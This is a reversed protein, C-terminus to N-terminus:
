FGGGTNQGGDLNGVRTVELPSKEGVLRHQLWTALASLMLNIVIYLAAVVIMTPVRNDFQLYIQKMIRTLGPSTVAYGLATDKLVVVCQSILAPLMIKVAQPLLVINMVQTKQMGIAYAAESQGKPVANVGARLVEAIVAGNYLTLALVVAWYNSGERNIGLLYWLFIMMLLVPLARFFEVVAWAPWRIWGRDALKGVGLVVGLVVAFVISTAAMQLTQLVGDVLIVEVYAPTIFVEWKDYTFQGRDYLRWIAWALIGLLVIASIVAYVLHRRRTRPGPADFLVSTTSM